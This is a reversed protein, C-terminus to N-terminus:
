VAKGEMKEKASQLAEDVEVWACTCSEPKPKDCPTWVYLKKWKLGKEPDSEVLEGIYEEGSDYVGGPLELLDELNDYRKFVKVQDLDLKLLEAVLMNAFSKKPCVLFAYKGEKVFRLIRPRYSKVTESM